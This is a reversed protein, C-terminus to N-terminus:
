PTPHGEQLETARERVWDFDRRDGSPPFYGSFDIYRVPQRSYPSLWKKVEAHGDAFFMTAAGNHYSAPLANWGPPEFRWLVFQPSAITDPHVDMVVWLQSPSKGRMDDLKRYLTYNGGSKRLGNDLGDGMFENMAVSRLRGQWGAKKQASSLYNDEPCKYAKLDKALHSALPALDSRTEQLVNTIRTDLDWRMWGNVWCEPTLVEEIDWDGGRPYYSNRVLRDDNEHAYMTWALALQHKRNLCDIMRAKTKAKSLAPLLLSALIAIIAIVVLLEILTFGFKPPPQTLKQPM